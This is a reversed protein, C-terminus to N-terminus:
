SGGYAPSPLKGFEGGITPGGTSTLGPPGGGILPIAFFIALIVILALFGAGSVKLTKKSFFPKKM